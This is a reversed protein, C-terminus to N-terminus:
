DAGFFSRRRHKELPKDAVFFFSIATPLRRHERRHEERASKRAKPTKKFFKAPERL